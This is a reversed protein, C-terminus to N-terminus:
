NTIILFQLGTKSAGTPLVIFDYYSCLTSINSPIESSPARTLLLRHQKIQQLCKILNRATVYRIFKRRFSRNEVLVMLLLTQKM